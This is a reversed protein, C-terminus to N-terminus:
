FAYMNITIDQVPVWLSALLTTDCSGQNKTTGTQTTNQQLYFLSVLVDVIRSCLWKIGSTLM